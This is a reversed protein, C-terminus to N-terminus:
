EHWEGRQRPDLSFQQARTLKGAYKRRRNVTVGPREVQDPPAGAKGETKFNRYEFRFWRLEDIMSATLLENLSWRGSAPDTEPGDSETEGSEAVTVRIATATASEPPLFSILVSMKRATLATGARYFDLLDMGYHHQLDAELEDTYRSVLSTIAQIKGFWSRWGQWM